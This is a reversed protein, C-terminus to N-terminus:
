GIIMNNPALTMYIIYEKTLGSSGKCEKQLGKGLVVTHYLSRDFHCSVYGYDKTYGARSSIGTRRRDPRISCGNNQGFRDLAWYYTPLYFDIVNRGCRHHVDGFGREK